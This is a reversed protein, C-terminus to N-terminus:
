KSTVDDVRRAGHGHLLVLRDVLRPEWQACALAVAGGWGEGVLSVQHSRQPPTATAPAAPNDFAKPSGAPAESGLREPSDGSAALLQAVVDLVAAVAGGPMLVLDTRGPLAEGESRAHKPGCGPFSLAVAHLGMGGGGSGSLGALYPRMDELSATPHSGHLLLVLPARPDGCSECRLRGAATQVAFRTLTDGELTTYQEIGEM